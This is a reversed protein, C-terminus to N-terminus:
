TWKIQSRYLTSVALTVQPSSTFIFMLLSPAQDQFKLAAVAVAVAMEAEATVMETAPNAAPNKRVANGLNFANKSTELRLELPTNQAVSCFDLM